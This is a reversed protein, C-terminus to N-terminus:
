MIISDITQTFTLIINMNYRFLIDKVVGKKNQRM